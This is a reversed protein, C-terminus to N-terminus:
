EQDILDIVVRRDSALRPVGFANLLAMARVNGDTVQTIVRLAPRPRHRALLQCLATGLGNSQYDDAVVLGVDLSQPEDPYRLIRAVGM